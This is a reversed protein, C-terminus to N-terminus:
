FFINIVQCEVFVYRAVNRANRGMSSVPEYSRLMCKNIYLVLFVTSVSTDSSRLSSICNCKAKPKSWITSHSYDGLTIYVCNWIYWLVNVRHLFPHRGCLLAISVVQGNCGCICIVCQILGHHSLLLLLLFVCECLSNRDITAYCLTQHWPLPICSLYEMIYNM